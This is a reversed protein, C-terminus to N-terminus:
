ESLLVRVRASLLPLPQPHEKGSAVRDLLSAETMSRRGPEKREMRQLREEVYGSLSYSAALQLFEDHLVIGGGQLEKLQNEINDLLVIQDKRTEIHSDAYHAYLLTTSTGVIHETGKPFVRNHLLTNMWLVGSKMLSFHSNFNTKATYTLLQSWIDDREVFDRVTRHMYEVTADPGLQALQPLELLGGCRANLQIAINACKQAIEKRGFARVREITLGEEMSFLLELITFDRCQGSDFLWSHYEIVERSTRCIQFVKSAWPKYLPDIHANFIHNYLPELETPLLRLRQQLIYIDDRNNIGQILSKVVIRVWLFVGAAKQVIEQILLHASAPNERSLRQFAESQDFKGNVYTHIDLYTLDQLQLKPCNRFSDKFVQWPRSSLCIKVKTSQALVKFLRAMEEHDGDFEDLGDILLCLKFSISNQEIICNLAVMLQSLPWRISAGKLDRFDHGLSKSYATAYQAPFAIPILEPIKLLIQHLLCRLLGTQSKQESSGSNWFFFSAICLPGIEPANPSLKADEAWATLYQQTRADDFIHKMLTSKGSGAKGNIWYVGTGTQLWDSLNSWSLQEQVSSQFVWEFTEPYAELVAEYRSSMTSYSLDWLLSGNVQKRLEDEESRFVSLMEVSATIHDAQRSGAEPHSTSNLIMDRTRLHEEKIAVDVRALCLALSTVQERLAKMEKSTENVKGTNELLQTIIHQTQGDLNTFATTARLSQADLESWISYIARTLLSDKLAGLRKVLSAIHEKSWASKLAQEFSKWKRHKKGKVKLGEVRELIEEALGTANDCIKEVITREGSEDDEEGTSSISVLQWQFLKQLKDIVARLDIAVLELEENVSLAGRTSTYIECGESFLKTGFDVFQVITGAVSLAALPDM